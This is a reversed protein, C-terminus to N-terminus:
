NAPKDLVEGLDILDEAGDGAFDVLDDEPFIMDDSVPRDSIGDGPEDIGLEIDDLLQSVDELEEETVPPVAPRDTSENAGTESLDPEAATEPPASSTSTEAGNDTGPVSSEMEGEVSEPVPSDSQFMKLMKEKGLDSGSDMTILTAHQNLMRGMTTMTIQLEESLRENEDKLREMEESDEPEGAAQESQDPKPIELTRYPETAGEFAVHLTELASSDRKLYLNILTQYFRKEEQRIKKGSSELLGGELGFNDQLFKQNEQHRREEDEEIHKVLIRAASRDRRKKLIGMVVLVVSAIVAVFLLEVLSMLLLTNIETM